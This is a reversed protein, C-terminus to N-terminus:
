EKKRYVAIWNKILKGYVDYATDILMYHEGNFQNKREIDTLSYNCLFEYGEPSLDKSKKFHLHIYNTDMINFNM